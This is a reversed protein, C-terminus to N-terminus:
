ILESLHEVEKIKAKELKGAPKTLRPIVILQFGLKQAEIIRESLRRVNRIEGGLGVEGIYITGAPLIRDDFSSLLAMCVGLDAAPEDVRLGGAVKVFV